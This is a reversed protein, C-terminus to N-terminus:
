ANNTLTETENEDDNILFSLSMSEKRLGHLCKIMGCVPIFETIITYLINQISYVLYNNKRLSEILDFYESLNRAIVFLLSFIMYIMMIMLWKLYNDKSAEVDKKNNRWFSFYMVLTIVYIIGIFVEVIIWYIRFRDEYAEDSASIITMIVSLLAYGCSGICLAKSYKIYIKKGIDFVYITETTRCALALFYLDKSTYLLGMFFEEPFYPIKELLFVIAQSLRMTVMLHLSIHMFVLSIEYSVKILKFNKISLFICLGELIICIVAISAYSIRRITLKELQTLESSEDYFIEEM